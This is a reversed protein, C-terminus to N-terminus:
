YMTKSRSHAFAAGVKFVAKENVFIWAFHHICQRRIDEVGRSDRLKLKCDALILKHLKKINEPVVASNAYGSREADNTNTHSCKFDAHWRKIM